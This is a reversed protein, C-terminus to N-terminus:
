TGSGESSQIRLWLGQLVAGVVFVALWAALAGRVVPSQPGEALPHAAPLRTLTENIGPVWLLFFSFSFGLQSLYAHVRTLARLKSALLAGAIALVAMIGLAHGANFGGSSSLGFSTFVALLLGGLYVKGARTAPDIRRYRVFSYVGAAAPILSILTHAAGLTSIPHPM